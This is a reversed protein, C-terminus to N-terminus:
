PSSKDVLLWRLSDLSKRLLREQASLGAAHEKVLTKMLRIAKPTAHVRSVRADVADSKREALGAESLRNVLQVAGHPM